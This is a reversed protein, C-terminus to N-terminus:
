AIGVRQLLKAFRPDGRLGDLRPNVRLSVLADERQGLSRELWDFAGDADGLGVHVLAITFPSVHQRKAITRLEDLIRDAEGRDGASAYVYGLAALLSPSQELLGIAKRVEEVASEHRGSLSHVIGIDVHVRAFTPDIALTAGYQALSEDFRRAYYLCYGRTWNVVLSLPDLELARRIADLGADFRGMLSLFVGQWLHATAYGPNADLARAFEAEAGDWDWDFRYKVLGLSCHAEALAPDLALAREAEIRAKSYAEAPPLLLFGGLLAYADALGSYALAFRPDEQAAREFLEVSRLLGERTRKNWYFRGQLYLRFAESNVTAREGLRRKERSLLKWRLSDSIEAVVREPFGTLDGESVAREASWLRAGDLVDVLEMRLTWTDRRRTASGALVARVHLERGVSRPDVARGKYRFVTSRATVRVDPLRSLMDIVRDTVGDCLYETEPSADEDMFPLVAISEIRKSRRRPRPTPAPATEPASSVSRLAVVIEAASRIRDAPDKQLCAHVIRDLASPIGLAAEPVPAPDRLIAAMVEAASSGGFPPAGTLMEFLTCGFSFLDSRTDASRGRVQEPSLYPITGALGPGAVDTVFRTTPDAPAAQFRALGFDLIKVPGAAALFVNEPKLDGHIVGKSHAADLGQAVALGIDLAERWPIAGRAIRDRLSEGRLLETVVFSRGAEAGIDFITLLHPHSLAALVKAERELRALAAPDHALHEPLVKLAVERELRHDHARYVEGMGGAGLRSVVEYPGLKLGAELAM